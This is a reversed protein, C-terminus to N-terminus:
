ADIAAKNNSFVRVGQQKEAIGPIADAAKAVIGFHPMDTNPTYRAYGEHIFVVFLCLAIMLFRRSLGGRIQKKQLIAM